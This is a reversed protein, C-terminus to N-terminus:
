HSFLISFLFVQPTFSALGTRLLIAFLCTYGFIKIDGSALFNVCLIIILVNFTVNLGYGMMHSAEIVM